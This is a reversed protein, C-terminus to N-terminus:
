CSRAATCGNECNQLSLSSTYWIVNIQYVLRYVVMVVMVMVQYVVVVQMGGGGGDGDGPIGGAIKGSIWM